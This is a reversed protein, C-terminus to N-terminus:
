FSYIIMLSNIVIFFVDRLLNLDQLIDDRYLETLLVNAERDRETSYNCTHIQIQKPMAQILLVVHIYICADKMNKKTFTENVIYVFFVELCWDKDKSVSHQVPFLANTPTHPCAFTYAYAHM